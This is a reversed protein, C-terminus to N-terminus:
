ILICNVNNICKITHLSIIKMKKREKLHLIFIPLFVNYLFPSFINIIKIKIKNKDKPKKKTKYVNLMAMSQKTKHTLM